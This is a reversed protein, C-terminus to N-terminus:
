LTNSRQMPLLSDDLLPETEPAGPFAQHRSSPNSLIARAAEVVLHACGPSLKSPHKVFFQLMACIDVDIGHRVCAACLDECVETPLKEPHKVFQRLLSCLSTGSPEAADSISVEVDPPTLPAKAVDREAYLVYHQVMFVMDFVISSSGLGFKVPNGIIATWDNLVSCTLIVQATSLVGGVFDLVVNHINWGVTSKRKFNFWMQPFYKVLTIGMKVFSLFYLFSLWNLLKHCRQCAVTAIACGYAFAGVAVVIFLLRSPGSLRQKGREYIFCQIVTFSTILLAHLSFMVDNLEVVRATRSDPDIGLKDPFWYMAVNFSAYCMWGLLNLGLFDFSLGVVSKRRWNMYLQPYFSFSWAAFYTWGIVSNIADYPPPLAHRTPVTLGLSVGVLVVVLLITSTGM